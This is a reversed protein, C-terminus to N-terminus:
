KIMAGLIAGAFGAVIGLLSVLIPYKWRQERRMELAHKQLHIATDILMSLEAPELPPKETDVRARARRMVLSYDAARESKRFFEPHELFIEDWDRASGPTSGIKKRFEELTLDYDPYIALFQLAALIDQLRYERLYLNEHKLAKKGLPETFREKLPM